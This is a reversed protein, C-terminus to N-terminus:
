RYTPLAFGQTSLSYSGRSGAEKRKTRNRKAALRLTQRGASGGDLTSKGGQSNFKCRDERGKQDPNRRVARSYHNGMTSFKASLAARARVGGGAAKRRRKSVRENLARRIPGERTTGLAIM